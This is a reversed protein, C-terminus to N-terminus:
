GLHFLDFVGDAYVRVPRGVPPPNTHYGKPDKLRGVVPSEMKETVETQPNSAPRNLKSNSAIDESAETTDSPEGPDEKQITPIEGNGALLENSPASSRTRVRKAPPDASSAPKRHKSGMSAEDEESADRSSPQQLEVVSAKRATPSAAARADTSADRKRKNFLPPSSM